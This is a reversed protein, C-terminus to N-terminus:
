ESNALRWESGNKWDGIALRWDSIAATERRPQYGSWCNREGNGKEWESSAM